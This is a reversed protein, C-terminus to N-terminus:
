PSRRAPRAASNMRRAPARTARRREDGHLRTVEALTNVALAVISPIWDAADVLEEIPRGQDCHDSFLKLAALAVALSLVADTKVPDDPFGESFHPMLESILADVVVAPRKPRRRALKLSVLVTQAAEFAQDTSMDDLLSIAVQVGLAGTIFNAASDKGGRIVRM